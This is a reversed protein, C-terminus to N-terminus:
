GFIDAPDLSYTGPSAVTARRRRAIRKKGKSTRKPKKRRRKATTSPRKSTAKKRGTKRKQSRKKTTPRRKIAKTVKKRKRGQGTQKNAMKKVAATKRRQKMKTVAAEAINLGVDQAFTKLAQRREPKTKIDQYNSVLESIGDMFHPLAMHVFPMTWRAINSFISGLGYGRQYLSGSFGPLVTVSQSKFGGSGGQVHHQLLLKCTNTSCMTM